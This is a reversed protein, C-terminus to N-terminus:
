KLRHSKVWAKHFEGSAKKAEKVLEDWDTPPHGNDLMRAFVRYADDVQGYARLTKQDNLWGYIIVRADSNFRFFLRYQQFFKARFWHTNQRGLTHGQRYEIRMPDEPILDFILRAVAALRKTANKKNYGIPDKAKITEVAEILSVFQQIFLPHALVIWGKVVLSQHAAESM